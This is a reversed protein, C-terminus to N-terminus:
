RRNRHNRTHHVPAIRPAAKPVPVPSSPVAAGDEQASDVKADPLGPGSKEPADEKEVAHPIEVVLPRHSLLEMTDYLVWGLFLVIVTVTVIRSLMPRGSRKISVTM